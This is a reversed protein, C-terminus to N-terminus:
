SCPGWAALVILLDRFGVTGDSDLDEPCGACPGWAALVALLDSFGVTGDGDFDELCPTGGADFLYASGSSLGNDDDYIAGGIVTSGSIAITLAFWDDGAGDSPVLKAIQQGTTTDFLYASGSSGADQFAGM